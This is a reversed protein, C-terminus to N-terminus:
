RFWMLFIAVLVLTSAFLIKVSSGSLIKVSRGITNRRREALELARKKNLPYTIREWTTLITERADTLKGPGQLRYQYTVAPGFYCTWGLTPDTLM